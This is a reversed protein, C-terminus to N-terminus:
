NVLHFPSSLLHPPPSPPHQTESNQTRSTPASLRGLARPRGPLVHRIHSLSTLASSLTRAYGPSRHPGLIAHSRIRTLSSPFPLTRAYWTPDTPDSSFAFRHFASSPVHTSGPLVNLFFTDIFPRPLCTPAELCCKCFSFISSLGLFARPRKWAVCVSLAYM